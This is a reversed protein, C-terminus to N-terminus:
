NFVGMEISILKTENEDFKFSLYTNDFLGRYKEPMARQQFCYYIYEKRGNMKRIQFPKGLNEILFDPNIKDIKTRLLSSISYLRFGNNALSDLKWFYSV